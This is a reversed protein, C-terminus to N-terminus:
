FFVVGVCVAFCCCFPVIVAVLQRAHLRSAKFSLSLSFFSRLLLVSAVFYISSTRCNFAYRRRSRSGVTLRAAVAAASAISHFEICLAHM